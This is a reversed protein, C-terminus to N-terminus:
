KQGNIKLVAFVKSATFNHFMDYPSTWEMAIGFSRLTLNLVDVEFALIVKKTTSVKSPFNSLEFFSVFLQCYIKRMINECQGIM